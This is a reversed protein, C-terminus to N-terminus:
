LFRLGIRQEDIYRVGVHMETKSGSAPELVTVVLQQGEALRKRAWPSVPDLRMGGGSVEAVRGLDNGQADLAFAAAFLDIREFRRREVQPKGDLTRRLPSASSNAPFSEESM